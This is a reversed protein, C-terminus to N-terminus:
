GLHALIACRDSWSRVVIVCRDTSRRLGATGDHDVAESADVNDAIRPCSGVGQHGHNAEIEMAQDEISGDYLTWM